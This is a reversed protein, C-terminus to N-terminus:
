SNSSGHVKINCHSSRAQLFGVQNPTELSGINRHIKEFEEEEEKKM